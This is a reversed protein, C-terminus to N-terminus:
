CRHYIGLYNNCKPCRHEANKFGASCCPLFCCGCFCGMAMLIFAAVYSFMGASYEIDTMVHMACYPCQIKMQHPGYAVSPAPWPRPSNLLVSGESGGDPSPSHTRQLRGVDNCPYSM